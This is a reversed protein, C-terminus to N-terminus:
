PLDWGPPLEPSPWSPDPRWDEWADDFPPRRRVLREVARDGWSRFSAAEAETFMGLAVADVLDDDDKWSWSARDLPILVDLVHDTTDFGIPTRRVPAQLNVYWGHAPGNPELLLLVAYPTEPWAFSLIDLTGRERLELRWPRDPERLQDGEDDIPMGCVAGAPVYFITQASLDQVVVAPRAEFVAGNWLERIAVTDGPEWV